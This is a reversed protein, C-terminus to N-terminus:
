NTFLWNEDVKDKPMFDNNEFSRTPEKVFDDHLPNHTYRNTVQRYRTYYVYWLFFLVVLVGIVIGAIAGGSLDSM